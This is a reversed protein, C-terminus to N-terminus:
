PPARVDLMQRRGIKVLELILVRRCKRHTHKYLGTSIVRKSHTTPTPVSTHVRELKGHQRRQRHRRADFSHHAFRRRGESSSSGSVHLAQATFPGDNTRCCYKTILRNCSLKGRYLILTGVTIILTCHIVSRYITSKGTIATPSDFISCGPISQQRATFGGKVCDDSLFSRHNAPLEIVFCANQVFRYSKVDDVDSLYVLMASSSSEDLSPVEYPLAARKSEAIWLHRGRWLSSRLIPHERRTTYEDFVGCSSSQWGGIVFYPRLM